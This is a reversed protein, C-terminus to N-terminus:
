RREFTYPGPRFRRTMQWFARASRPWQTVVRGNAASAASSAGRAKIIAAGRQQVPPIYDNEYWANDVLDLAGARGNCLM